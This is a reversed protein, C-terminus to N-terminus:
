RPKRQTKQTKSQKDPKKGEFAGESFLEYSTLGYVLEFDNVLEETGQNTVKPSSVQKGGKLEEYLLLGTFDRTLRAVQNQFLVDAQERGIGYGQDARERWLSGERAGVPYLSPHIEEPDILEMYLYERWDPPNPVIRAGSVMLFSGSQYTANKGSEGVRLARGAETLVPPLVSVEGERIMLRKFDFIADLRGELPKVVTDLIEQYRSNTGLQIATSYAAEKQARDRPAGSAVEAGGDGQLNKLRALERSEAFSVAPLGILGILLTLVILVAILPLNTILNKPKTM